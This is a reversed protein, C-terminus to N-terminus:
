NITAPMDVNHIVVFTVFSASESQEPVIAPVSSKNVNVFLCRNDHVISNVYQMKESREQCTGNQVRGVIDPDCSQKKLYRWHTSVSFPWLFANGLWHHVRNCYISILRLIM